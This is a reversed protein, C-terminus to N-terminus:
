KVEIGEQIWLTLGPIDSSQYTFYKVDGDNASGLNEWDFNQVDVSAGSSGSIKLIGGEIDQSKFDDSNLILHSTSHLDVHEFGSFMASTVTTNDLSITDFGEGGIINVQTGNNTSIEGNAYIFDNGAGLDINTNIIADASNGEYGLALVTDNGAGMVIDTGSITGGSSSSNLGTYDISTSGNYSDTTARLQGEENVYLTVDNNGVGVVLTDDGNGMDTRHSHDTYGASTNRGYDRGTVILDNGEGTFLGVPFRSAQTRDLGGFSDTISIVDSGTHGNYNYQNAGSDLRQSTVYSGPNSDLLTSWNKSVSSVKDGFISPQPYLDGSVNSPLAREYFAVAAEAADAKGNGDQDTVAPVDAPTLGDLRTQLGEKGETGEPVKNVAEQAAQKATDLATNADEVAKAEAPTILGNQDKDANAAAEDAAEKKAEAAQVAAEAAALSAEAADAKGNGDQDTVAPVDAPTLGDLRTQLGEKGETGEPVKNVAEQAAQKATDLATNADEVAKAEAPTILGNQDKDANAAAEDAAEKKAEAAQVAAEAAALSAEAADAKGNGDQDTVAPVDAPTLGDLRTQLGEKGETGEPVKNVAEQAAQKATDLATNADEVAKAEAPTILGNQDKDANAAAEDAAEKKAEAAQVAAEAAALSAEAADAKGNGDQDTVAPVDAPTLGDLRTQLGEKGETGEPVKNVAEQAAQKATDLATNADEVAKAEAPTILGNQDKDANAAAEDAAEKKAEAAQVAAEAAALSAEAADAKGNGDQDTVAPVDAPTLGDLRTQLGEKGETGEPVKNVAEQAAQKATDLATNADEVAKAEAPTILGNQDKDANAAAEDAAEKKAEAAQVAAEAAALSAEAADAKGNGDQDTVAPVDAPTLGDLRTQLGEKGETGEPVKNVAEQAAQKATDLATNADEVAKAEAPTILGNQDKDANAAAEDAAEKKAEAAQVAAEAAALSAEAADAKGNGDQDTVAPVDAPTLGDLRTQLGEKGETGEPVKNVAEQAAQKATDLATNADEVAKAEAPTILGNQDKDANAAAEDAAEKKAEAAQVAAEAAALSAEAADAKGNGDQDTVAPVDAPTLGDLRTQLGEKGETGEPVKNVAEQAAQKATDLATNADEVAKAEAPTILGNQDKDANAAAEDAAEKKAEAAQVAAEAAALSAEAADAKGNGDQDTVAPVDAPTLGDLRTQLGEKGETGEPVKNVAEQAAQKATDLATNADEVAKAEAPTILGNQDKDANAAAEDAAEKKAEAAQVAAEAAALSAEAADAKGNGDQDTVAPVDAPTLGDLRTQLGEKGETGEPVKNVAEQAAQKATDLATNADEM